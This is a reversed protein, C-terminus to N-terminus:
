ATYNYHLTARRLPDNGAAKSIAAWKTSDLIYYIDSLKTCGSFANAGISHLRKSNIRLEALNSCNQFAYTDITNVALGITVSRLNTCGGFTQSNVTGVTDPIDISILDVCNRFASQGITTVSDPLAIEQIASNAFAAAGVTILTNGLVEISTLKDCSSFASNGIETIGSPIIISTLNSCGAFASAGISAVGDPITFEPSTQGIAYQVLVTGSKNYINNAISQYYESDSDVTIKTLCDCNQFVGSGLTTVSAPIEINTLLTSSFASSGIVKVRTPIEISTLSTCNSFASSGITALKSGEAFAVSALSKCQQFAYNGISTVSAPISISTLSTCNYFAYNSIFTVSDPIVVLTLNTCNRFAYDGINAVKSPIFLKTGQGLESYNTLVCYPSTTDTNYSSSTYDKECDMGYVNVLTNWSAVLNNNDDYLGAAMVPVIVSSIFVDDQMVKNDCPLTASKGSNVSTLTGNYSIYGPEEFAVVIDSTMFQEKCALKATQKAELGALTSNKYQITAANITAM